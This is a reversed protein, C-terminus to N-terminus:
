QKTTTNIMDPLKGEPSMKILQQYKEDGVIGDVSWETKVGNEYIPISYTVEKENIIQKLRKIEAIVDDGLEIKSMMVLDMVQNELLNILEQQTQITRVEETAEYAGEPGIQFDDSVYPPENVIGDMDIDYHKHYAKVLLNVDFEIPGYEDDSCDFIVKNDVIKLYSKRGWNADGKYVITEVM